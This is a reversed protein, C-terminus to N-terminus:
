NLAERILETEQDIIRSLAPEDQMQTALRKQLFYGHLQPMLKVVKEFIGSPPDPLSGMIRLFEPDANPVVQSLIEPSM